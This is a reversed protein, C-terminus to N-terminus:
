AASARIRERRNEQRETPRSEPHELESEPSGVEVVSIEAVAALAQVWFAERGV